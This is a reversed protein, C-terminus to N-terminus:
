RPAPWGGRVSSRARAGVHLPLRQPEARGPRRGRSRREHWTLAARIRTVANSSETARTRGVLYLDPSLWPTSANGDLGDRIRVAPLDNFASAPQLEEWTFALDDINRHWRWFIPDRIAAMPDNM